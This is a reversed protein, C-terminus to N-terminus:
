DCAFDDGTTPHCFEPWGKARWYEVYGAKRAFTKFRETKRVPAFSPHWLWGMAMGALRGGELISEYNDLVRSEGGVHLYVWAYNVGLAPLKQPMDTKAPATRLLRAAAAAQPDSPLAALTDIAEGYRGMSAYMMALEPVNLPNDAPPLTKALALAEEDKGNLWLAGTLMTKYLPVFPEITQLQQRVALGEKVRGVLELILARGHTFAMAPDLAIARATYAEAEL